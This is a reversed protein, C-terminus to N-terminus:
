SARTGSAVLRRVGHVLLVRHHTVTGTRGARRSCPEARGLGRHQLITTVGIGGSRCPSPRAAPSRDSCGSRTRVQSAVLRHVGALAVAAQAASEVAQPRRERRPRAASRRPGRAPRRRSGRPSRPGQPRRSRDRLVRSSTRRRPPSETLPRTTAAPWGTSPRRVPRAV